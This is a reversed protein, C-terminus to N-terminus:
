GGYRKQVILGCKLTKTNIIKGTKIITDMWGQAAWKNYSNPEILLYFIGKKDQSPLYGYKKKGYWQFLYYYQYTYVGPAYIFLGFKKGNADKYIYDVAEKEGKIKHYGGYDYYDNRFDKVGLILAQYSLLILIASFLFLIALKKQRFAAYLIYGLFFIYIFNLHYLYYMFVTNRLFSIAFITSAILILFFSILKKLEKRKENWSLYIFSAAFVILFIGTLILEPASFTNGFNYLFKELHNNILSYGLKADHNPTTIYSIFGNLALFRHRVEFLLFPLLTLIIGGFLLAYEKLRRFKLNFISHLILALLLPVTTAIEFNYTAASFFGALFIYKKDKKYSLYIFLFSLLIFFPVPHPNWTFKAQSVIPPSLAVLLSVALSVFTNKFIIKAVFFSAILTLLAFVFMYVIGGYPDGKFLIYFVSLLYYHLPGQFIGNIGAYGGGIESGILTLKKNLILDSVNAYDRGQDLVFVFNHSLLEATRSVLFIILIFLVLLGEFIRKLSFSM